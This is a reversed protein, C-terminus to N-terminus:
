KCSVVESLFNSLIEPHHCYLMLGLTLARRLVSVQIVAWTVCRLQSTTILFYKTLM